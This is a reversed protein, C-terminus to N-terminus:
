QTGTIEHFAADAANTWEFFADRDAQPDICGLYWGVTRESGDALVWTLSGSPADTYAREPECSFYHGAFREGPALAGRVREFDAAAVSFTQPTLQEQFSVGRARRELSASGSADITWREMTYGWSTTHMTISQVAASFPPASPTTDATACAALVFASLTAVLARM